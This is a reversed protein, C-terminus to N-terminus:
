RRLLASAVEEFSDRTLNVTGISSRRVHQLSTVEFPIYICWVGLGEIGGYPMRLLTCQVTGCTRSSYPDSIPPRPTTDETVWDIRGAARLATPMSADQLGLPRTHLREAPTVFPMRFVPFEHEYSMVGHKYARRLWVDIMDLQQRAARVWQEHHGPQLPALTPTYQDAMDVHYGGGRDIRSSSLSSM